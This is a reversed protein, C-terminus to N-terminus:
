TDHHHKDDQASVGTQTSMARQFLILPPPLFFFFSMAYKRDNRRLHRHRQGRSSESISASIYFHYTLSFTLVKPLTLTHPPKNTLTQTHQHFTQTSSIHLVTHSHVSHTWCVSQNRMKTNKQDYQKPWTHQLGRSTRGDLGQSKQATSPDISDALM